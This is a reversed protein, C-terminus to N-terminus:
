WRFNNFVWYALAKTDTFRDYTSSSGLVAILLQRNQSDRVSSAFCYGAADTFGTKGAEIKYSNSDTGFDEKLIKDTSVFKRAAEKNFVAASYSKTAGAKRVEFHSFAVSILRVIDAASAQNNSSLGTPEVFRSQAMDLIQAYQNMQTVFDDKSLGTSRALAAAGENSSAVLTAYFLDRVTVTDGILLVPVSGGQYDDAQMTVQKDWGPNHQLFVLVTMLKTISAISRPADANKEYLVAGSNPEVVICSEATVKVGLSADTTTARVPLAAVTQQEPTTVTNASLVSDFPGFASAKFVISALILNLIIDLM